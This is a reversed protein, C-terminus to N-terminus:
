YFLKIAPSLVRLELPMVYSPSPVSVPKPSSSASVSAAAHQGAATRRTASRRWRRPRCPSSLSISRAAVKAPRADISRGADPLMSVPPAQSIRRSTWRASSSSGATTTPRGFGAHQVQDRREGSSARRVGVGLHRPAGDAFPSGRRDAILTMLRPSSQHLGEVDDTPRGRRATLSPRPLPQRGGRDEGLELLHADARHRDDRQHREQDARDDGLLAGELQAVEAGLDEDDIEDADQMSRSSPTSSVAIMIAPREPLAMVASIPEIFIRSSISASCTM